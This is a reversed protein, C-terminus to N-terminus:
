HIPTFKVGIASGAQVRNPQKGNLRFLRNNPQDTSTEVNRCVFRKDFNQDSNPMRWVNSRQSIGVEDGPDERREFHRNRAAIKFASFVRPVLFETSIDYSWDTLVLLPVIKATFLEFSSTFM